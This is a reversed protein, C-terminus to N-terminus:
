RRKFEFYNPMLKKIKNIMKELKLSDIKNNTYKSTIEELSYDSAIATLLNKEYRYEFLEYLFTERFWNNPKELGFDDIFLVDVNFLKNKFDNLTTEKSNFINNTIYEFLNNINLYAVKIDKKALENAFNSLVFSKGFFPYAKLYFGRLNKLDDKNKIKTILDRFSEFDPNDVYKKIRKGLTDSVSSIDNFVLNQKIKLQAGYKNKAIYDVFYLKNNERIIKTWYTEKDKNKLRQNMKLLETSYTLIEDDKLDYNHIILPINEFTKLFSLVSELSLTDDNNIMKNFELFEDNKHM